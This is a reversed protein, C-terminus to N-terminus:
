SVVEVDSRKASGNAADSRASGPMFLSWLVAMRLAVSSRVQAAMLSRAGTGVDGTIEVGFNAPGPHMVVASPKMSAVADSDVRFRSEYSEIYADQNHRETQLRLVYLVDVDGIVANLNTHSEVSLGGPPIMWAASVVCVSAGMRTLLKVVSRAVRSHAIDGVIAVRLGEVGGFHETLCLADGLAQTPHERAGDGANVVACSVSDALRQAAGAHPHRVVIADAGLAQLTRGTESLSEGKVVSSSATDVNIVEASLRKAAIEFSVRTRTSPEYFLNVIVRGRLAPMLGVDSERRSSFAKADSLIQNIQSDTLDSISLLHRLSDM